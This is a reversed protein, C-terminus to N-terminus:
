DMNKIFKHISKIKESNIDQMINHLLKIDETKLQRIQNTIDLIIPENVLNLENPENQYQEILKQFETLSMNMGKAILDSFTLSIGVNGFKCLMIKSIYSKSINSNRAFETPTIGRSACYDRIILMIAKERSM